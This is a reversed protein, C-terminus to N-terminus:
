SQQAEDQNRMHDALGAFANFLRERMDADLVCEDLALRMCMLWQDRESKGIAFPLHRARLRPHGFQSEYLPPGGLWGTLYMYLKNISGSLDAHHLKRIGYAEPLTDMLEYFRNVLNKVTADGGIIEYPTVERPAAQEPTTAQTM